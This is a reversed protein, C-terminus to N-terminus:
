QFISEHLKHNEFFDLSSAIQKALSQKVDSLRMFLFEPNFMIKFSTLNSFLDVTRSARFYVSVSFWGIRM